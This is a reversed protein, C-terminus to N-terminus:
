ITSAAYAILGVAGVAAALYRYVESVSPAQGPVDVFIRSPDGPKQVVPVIQGATFTGRRFAQHARVGRPMATTAVVVWETQPSTISYRQWTSMPRVEAIVAEGRLGHTFVRRGRWKYAFVGLCGLLFVVAAAIVLGIGLPGLDDIASSGSAVIM